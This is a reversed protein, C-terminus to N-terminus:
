MAGLKKKGSPKQTGTNDAKHLCRTPQPQAARVSKDTPTAQTTITPETQTGIEATNKKILKFERTRLHDGFLSMEHKEKELEYHVRLEWTLKQNCEELSYNGAEELYRIM